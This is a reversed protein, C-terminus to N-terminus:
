TLHVCVIVGQPQEPGLFVVLVRSDLTVEGWSGVEWRFKCPSWVWGDREGRLGKFHTVRVTSAFDCMSECAPAMGLVKWTEYVNM